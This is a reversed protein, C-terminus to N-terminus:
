NHSRTANAILLIVTSPANIQRAQGIAFAKRKEEKAKKPAGRKDEQFARRALAFVNHLGRSIHFVAFNMAIPEPKNISKRFEIAM